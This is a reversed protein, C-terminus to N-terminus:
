ASGGPLRRLAWSKGGGSNAQVLLRSVVLRDVDLPLPKGEVTGLSTKM